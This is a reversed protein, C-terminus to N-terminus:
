RRPFGPRRRHARGPGQRLVARCPDARDQGAQAAAAARRGTAPRGGTQQLVSVAADLSQRLTEVGAGDAEYPSSVNRDHFCTYGQDVGRLYAIDAHLAFRLWKEYDATHPIDHDGVALQVSTRAAVTPTPVCNFGVALRRELWRRGPHVVWHPNATEAAPMPQGARWTLPRGYVLADMVACARALAGPTLM